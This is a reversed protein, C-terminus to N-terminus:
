SKTNRCIRQFQSFEEMLSAPGIIEAYQRWCWPTGYSQDRGPMLEGAQDVRGIRTWAILSAQHTRQAAPRLLNRHKALQAPAFRLSVDAVLKTVSGPNFAAGHVQNLTTRGKVRSASSPVVAGSAPVVEFDQAEPAPPSGRPEKRRRLANGM